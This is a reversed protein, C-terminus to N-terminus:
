STPSDRRCGAWRFCVSESGSSRSAPAFGQTIGEILHVAMPFWERFKEGFEAAGIVWFECDTVARVSSWYPLEDMGKVFSQTAGSYVGRQNTRSLEVETNESAAICPCRAPSCFSSTRRRSVRPTSREGALWTKCYGKESLWDLQDDDLAEFLFLTRLEAPEAAGGPAIPESM